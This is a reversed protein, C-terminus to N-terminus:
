HQKHNSSNNKKGNQRRALCRQEFEDPCNKAFIVRKMLIMRRLKKQDMMLRRRKKTKLNGTLQEKKHYLM